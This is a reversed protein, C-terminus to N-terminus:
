YGPVAGTVIGGPATVSPGTVAYPWPIDLRPGCELQMLSAEGGATTMFNWIGGSFYEVTYIFMWRTGLTPSYWKYTIGDNFLYGTGMQGPAPTWVQRFLMTDPPFTESNDSNIYFTFRIDTGILLDGQFHFNIYRFGATPCRVNGVGITRTSLSQENFTQVNANNDSNEPMWEYPTLAGTTKIMNLSTPTVPLGYRPGPRVGYDFPLNPVWPNSVGSISRHLHDRLSSATYGAPLASPVAIVSNSFGYNGDWAHNVRIAVIGGPYTQGNTDTTYPWAEAQPLMPLGSASLTNRGISRMATAKTGSNPPVGMKMFRPITTM